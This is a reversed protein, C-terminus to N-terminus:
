NLLKEDFWVDEHNDAILFRFGPSLALFKMIREDWENIHRACLPVFFDDDDSFEDAWVYWGNTDNEPNHRLGNIVKIKKERLNKSVGMRLEMDVECYEAGYKKCIDKQEDIINAM